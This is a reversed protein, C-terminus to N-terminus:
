RRAARWDDALMGLIIMDSRDGTTADRMHRVLHVEKRWADQLMLWLVPRNQPRVNAKAKWYGLKNFLYDYIADSTERTVQERRWAPNGILHTIVFTSNPAQFKLKYSGIADKEQKPFIGLFHGDAEANAKVFYAAQDAVTWLRQRMNLMEAAAPDSNWSELAPSADDKGFPRILFRETKLVFSRPPLVAM